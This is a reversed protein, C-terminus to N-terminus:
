LLTEHSGDRSHSPNWMHSRLISSEMPEAGPSDNACLAAATAKPAVAGRARARTSQHCTMSRTDYTPYYRDPFYRDTLSPHAPTRAAVSRSRSNHRALHAAAVSRGRALHAPSPDAVLYFGGTCGDLVKQDRGSTCASIPM